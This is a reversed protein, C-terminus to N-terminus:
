AGATQVLIPLTGCLNSEVYATEYRRRGAGWTYVRILTFDCPQGDPGTSGAGRARSSDPYPTRTRGCGGHETRVMRRFPVTDFLRATAASDRVECIPAAGLGCDGRRSGGECSVAGLRRAEDGGAHGRERGARGRRGR